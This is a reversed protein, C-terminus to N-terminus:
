VYYRNFMNMADRAAVRNDFPGFVWDGPITFYWGPERHQDPDLYYLRESCLVTRATSADVGMELSLESM